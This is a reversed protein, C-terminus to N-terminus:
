VLSKFVIRLRLVFMSPRLGNVAIPRQGQIAMRNPGARYYDEKLRLSVVNVVDSM